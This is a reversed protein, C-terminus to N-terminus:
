QCNHSTMQLKERTSTFPKHHIYKEINAAYEPINGLTIIDFGKNYEDTYKRVNVKNRIRFKTREQNEIDKEQFFPVNITKQFNIVRYQQELNHKLEYRKKKMKRQQDIVKIEDPVERSPDM